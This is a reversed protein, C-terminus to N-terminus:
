AALEEIEGQTINFVASQNIGLYGLSHATYSFWQYDPAYIVPPPPLRSFPFPPCVGGGGSRVTNNSHFCKM